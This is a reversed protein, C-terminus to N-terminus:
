RLMSVFRSGTSCKETVKAIKLRKMMAQWSSSSSNKGRKTVAYSFRNRGKSLRSDRSKIQETRSRSDGTPALPEGALVTHRQLPTAPPRCKMQNLSRSCHVVGNMYAGWASPPSFGRILPPYPAPFPSFHSNEHAAHFEFRNNETYLNHLHQTMRAARPTSYITNHRYCVKSKDLSHNCLLM